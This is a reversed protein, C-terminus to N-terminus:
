SIAHDALTHNPHRYAIEAPLLLQYRGRQPVQGQLCKFIKALLLCGRERNRLAASMDAVFSHFNNRILDSSATDCRGLRANGICFV